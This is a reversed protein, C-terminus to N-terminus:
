LFSKEARAFDERLPEVDGVLARTDDDWPDRRDDGPRSSERTADVVHDTADSTLSLGHSLLDLFTAVPKPM